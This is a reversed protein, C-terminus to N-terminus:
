FRKSISLTAMPALRRSLLQPMRHRFKQAMTLSRNSNLNLRKEATEKDFVATASGAPLMMVGRSPGLEFIRIM